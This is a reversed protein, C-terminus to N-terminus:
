RRERQSRSGVVMTRDDDSLAALAPDALSHALWLPYGRWGLHQQHAKIVLNALPANPEQERLFAAELGDTFGIVAEVTHAPAWWIGVEAPATGPRLFSTENAYQGHSPPLALTWRGQRRLLLSSDGVQAVLLQQRDWLCAVLTHDAVPGPRRGNWFASLFRQQLQQHSRHCFRRQSRALHRRLLLLAQWGAQASLRASHAVTPTGGAGDCIVFGSLRPDPRPTFLADCCPQHRAAHGEGRWCAGVIRPVPSM